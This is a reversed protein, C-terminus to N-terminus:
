WILPGGSSRKGPGRSSRRPIASRFFTEGFDVDFVVTVPQLARLQGEVLHAARRFAEKAQPFNDLQPTSRLVITFLGAAQPRLEGRPIEKLTLDPDYSSLYRVEDYTAAPRCRVAGDQEEYM